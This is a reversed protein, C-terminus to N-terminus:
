SRRSARLTPLPLSSCRSRRAPTSSTCSHYSIVPRPGPETEAIGQGQAARRRQERAAAHLPREVGPRHGGRRLRVGGRHLSVEAAALAARRQRRGAAPSVAGIAKVAIVGQLLRRSPATRPCRRSSTRGFRPSSRWPASGESTPSSGRRRSSRRHRLCRRPKAEGIAKVAITTGLMAPPALAGNAPRPKWPISRALAIVAM